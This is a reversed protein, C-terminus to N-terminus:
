DTGERSIRPIFVLSVFLGLAIQRRNLHRHRIGVYRVPFWSNAGHTLHASVALPWAWSLPCDTQFGHEYITSGVDM